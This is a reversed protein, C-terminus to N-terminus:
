LHREKAARSIIGATFMNSLMASGGYSIFPLPVGTVPMIGMTMGLNLITQFVFITVLGIVTLSAFRYTQSSAIKVGRLLFFLFTILVVLSGIFGWEEALVSFIFDTHQAPLFRLQTQTGHLLGKGWFGGSGIAVISQIIQYGVGKPDSVLNLFTLIRQQQYGHLQNWLIPALLGVLINISFVMWGIIKGRRSLYLVITIVGIVIFFTYLNFSAIFSIFPSCLIFITFPSLNRWYLVPIVVALYVLSTGLDPQKLVLAFPVFVLAFTTLLYRMRNPNNQEPALYRAITLVLIPKMFESPQFKIAGLEFWRRAGGGTSGFIDLLLIFVLLIGYAVYTSSFIVNLPIFSIIIFISLGVIVWILQKNFQDRVQPLDANYTASYVALLGYASLLLICVLIGKDVWGKQIETLM